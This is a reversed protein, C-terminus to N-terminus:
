RLDTVGLALTQLKGWSANGTGSDFATALIDLATLLLSGHTNPDIGSSDANIYVGVEFDRMSIKTPVVDADEYRLRGKIRVTNGSGGNGKPSTQVEVRVHNEYPDIKSVYISTQSGSKPDTITDKFQLSNGFNLVPVSANKTPTTIGGILPLGALYYAM